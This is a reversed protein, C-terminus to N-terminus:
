PMKQGPAAAPLTQPMTVPFNPALTAGPWAVVLLFCCLRPQSVYVKSPLFTQPRKNYNLYMCARLMFSTALNAGKVVLFLSTLWANM